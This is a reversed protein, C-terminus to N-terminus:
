NDSNTKLQFNFQSITQTLERICDNSNSLVKKRLKQYEEESINNYDRLDELLVLFNKFLVTVNRKLQFEIYDNHNGQVEM